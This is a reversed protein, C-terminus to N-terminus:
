AGRPTAALLEEASLVEDSDILIRGNANLVIVRFGGPSPLLERATNGTISYGHSAGGLPTGIAYLVGTEEPDLAHAIRRQEQLREDNAEPGIIVVMIPDFGINYLAGLEEGINASSYSGGFSDHIRIDLSQALALGAFLTLVCGLLLRM